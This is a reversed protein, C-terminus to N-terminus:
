DNESTRDRTPPIKSSVITVLKVLWHFRSVVVSWMEVGVCCSGIQSGGIAIWARQPRQWARLLLIERHSRLQGGEGLWWERTTTSHHLFPARFIANAWPLRASSAARPLLSGLLLSFHHQIIKNRSLYLEEAPKRLILHANRARTHTITARAHRQTQKGLPPWTLCSLWSSTNHQLNAIQESNCM